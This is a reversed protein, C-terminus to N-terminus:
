PPTGASTSVTLPGLEFNFRCAVRVGNCGARDRMVSRCVSGQYSETITGGTAGVVTIKLLGKLNTLPKQNQIFDAYAADMPQISKTVVFEFPGSLNGQPTLVPWKVIQPQSEPTYTETKQIVSTLGWQDVVITAQNADDGLTVATEAGSPQFTIVM